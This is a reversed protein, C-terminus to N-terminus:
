ADASDSGAAVYPEITWGTESESDPVLALGYRKLTARAQDFDNDIGFFKALLSLASMKNHMKLSFNINRSVDTETETSSVSAIAATIEKPLEDSDKLVVGSSSFSLSDTINGFAVRSIERLTRELTVESKRSANERLTNLYGQIDVNTLLKSALRRASEESCTYGARLYAATANFDKLYEECFRKHKDILGTELDRAM